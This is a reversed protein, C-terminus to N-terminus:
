AFVWHARPAGPRPGALTLSNSRKVFTVAENDWSEMGCYLSGCYTLSRDFTDIFVKETNTAYDHEQPLDDALCECWLVELVCRPFASSSECRLGGDRPVDARGQGAASKDLLSLFFTVKQCTLSRRIIEHKLEANVCFRCRKYWLQLCTKNLDSTLHSPFCVWSNAATPLTAEQKLPRM